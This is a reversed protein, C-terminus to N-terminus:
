YNYSTKPSSFSFNKHIQPSMKATRVTMLAREIRKQSLFFFSSESSLSKKYFINSSILEVSIIIKGTSISCNM